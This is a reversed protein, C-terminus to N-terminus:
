RLRTEVEEAAYRGALQALEEVQERPLRTQADESDLLDRLFADWTVGPPRRDALAEFTDTSVTITTRDPM